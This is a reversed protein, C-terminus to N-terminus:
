NVASLGLNAESLPNHFLHQKKYEVKAIAWSYPIFYLM